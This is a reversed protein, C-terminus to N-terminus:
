GLQAMMAHIISITISGHKTYFQIIEDNICKALPVEFMNEEDAYDNWEDIADEIFQEITTESTPLFTPSENDDYGLWYEISHEM